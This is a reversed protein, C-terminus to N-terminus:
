NKRKCFLLQLYNKVIREDKEGNLMWDKLFTNTAMMASINISKILDKQIESYISDTTLPLENVTIAEHISQKSVRYM